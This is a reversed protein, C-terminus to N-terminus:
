GNVVADYLLAGVCFCMCAMMFIMTVAGIVHFVNEM